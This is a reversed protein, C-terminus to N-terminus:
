RKHVFDGTGIDINLGVGEGCFGQENAVQIVLIESPLDDIRRSDKIVWQLLHVGDLHLTDSSHGM